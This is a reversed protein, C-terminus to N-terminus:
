FTIKGSLQLIRPAAVTGTILGATSDGVTNDISSGGGSGGTALGGVNINYQHHNFTNFTQVRLEFKAREGLSVDKGFGMDFDNIGPQRLFNRGTDGYTGAPSNTFCAMNIRQFKQTLNSHINCGPVYEARPATTGTLGDVDTSAIGYPFGTQFTTIGTLEWGGVLADAVRNVNAALKKGRGFPLQYVYAAVFRHNVDFDSPGYDLQPNHNDMFGQYGTGTAGVGAAASKDDLSRAWTFVSTVALDHARHEFKVNMANYNSYGHFDSDIYYGTFNPYPLRDSTACPYGTTALTASPNAQCYSLDAPPIANPQAIDRRDLFHTGKTGIYNVELTTNRALEREVSLTRNQIYPNMPNESEIVAIFSLTSVPFPGLTSYSPFLENGLKETSPIASNGAPTLNNRISYPYIDASDDIERGEFSDFFIGYGGRIVTKDNIRYAFGIRPAFPTKSGPHPVSGCYRLIPGGNVGVGPAVGDTSLKPDAYCLGGESNTTDLWFFHNSAEYAAARFDWRLGLNMTLKPTAKWDDEFYPGVYSFIHTQPNGAQTTPSLPGPVYGAVNYYYGLLMDAIGNGTGCLSQTKGDATTVAPNPCNIGNTLVNKSYFEWDGYFDDDLNRILQWRRYDIGMGLTHKGHVWSFSDAYEWAPGNSGTYANIPGGSTNFQSLAISPWTQQLAAFHTFVGTEGLASVASAPPAPAGQPAQADLYGFRFNNVMSNGLSITHSAEWSKQTEYQTLLGYNLSETDLASNQYTSYTFRFFVQGLKRLSQDGRYTQQNTRLPLAIDKFFNDIGEPQGTVTPTGWYGNAVAVQALRSTQDGSPITNSPFAAGTLPNVPMCNQNEALLTACDATGYAPLAGGPLPHPVGNLVANPQPSYTEASFNGTLVAPNPVEEEAQAGNNITWHEWNAMFFSKNRGDYLKPIYVPGDVVFGFQNQQLVANSTPTSSTYNTATAFPLADYDNNRNFEFLAGHLKNTGSKSVINIQSASFGYEASYTGSEVKFEQIADQSLIVAPTVLAPDTNVLGDLTYNNGEPRGGNISV